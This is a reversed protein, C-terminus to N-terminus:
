QLVAVIVPTALWIDYVVISCVGLLLLRGVMRSGSSDLPMAIAYHDSDEYPKCNVM